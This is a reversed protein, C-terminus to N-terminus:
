SQPPDSAFTAALLWLILARKKADLDITTDESKILSHGSNGLSIIHDLAGSGCFSSNKYPTAMNITM